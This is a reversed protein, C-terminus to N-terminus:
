EEKNFFVEFETKALINNRCDVLYVRYRSAKSFKARYSFSLLSRPIDHTYMNAFTEYGKKDLYCVRYLVRDCNIATDLKVNFYLVKEYNNPTDFIFNNGISDAAYDDVFISQSFVSNSIILVFSFFLLTM